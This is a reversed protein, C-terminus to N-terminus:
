VPVTQGIVDWTDTGVLKLTVSMGNGMVLTGGYPANLTVGSAAALTLNAAGARRIHIETNAVWSATPVTFTVAAANTSRLYLGADALALTRATTTDPTVAASSNAANALEYWSSWGSISGGATGPTGYRVKLQGAQAAKYPWITQMVSDDGSRVVQVNGDVPWGDSEQARYIGIGFQCNAPTVTPLFSEEVGGTIRLKNRALTTRVGEPFVAASILDMIWLQMVDLPHIARGDSYPNDMWLGAAPRSDKLWGYTDLFCCQYDRAAQKVGEAIQEYWLEDRGNPTDSTTNPMMLVISTQSLTRSARFTSLLSRLSTLFDDRDRRNPYAQGADAPPASGSKLWGPDNVGLRVVYLDPAAAIDAGLYNIRYQETNVGSVGANVAEFGYVPNLGRHIGAEKFLTHIKYPASADDGKTTSDGAFRVKVARTPVALQTILLKHFAYLYERGAIFQGKDAYTNLQQLGGTVAKVIAGGGGFKAGLTNTFSPALFKSGPELYVFENKTALASTVQSQSTTAGTPDSGSYDSVAVGYGGGGGGGTASITTGTINLGSGIALNAYHGSSDDWFLLSDSGPDTLAALDTIPAPVGTLDGWASSGGGGSWAVWSSGDYYYFQHEDIVRVIFGERPDVFQWANTEDLWYALDGGHGSWDGSPSGSNIIYLDGNVPTSPPSSLDKDIAYAQVLQDLQAFTANANLWQSQGNSLDTLGLKVTM